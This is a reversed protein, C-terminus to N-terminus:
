YNEIPEVPDIPLDVEIGTGWGSLDVDFGSEIPDPKAEEEEIRLGSVTIVGGKPQKKLQDAIDYNFEVIKGNRLLVELNLTYTRDESNNQDGTRGYYEDPFGPVGFSKVVAECGYSKVDCDYLIVATEDSTRGDRLYVSEAMGGIAGRAYAVNELGSEFEYRILYTFVLPQMKVPVSRVEHLDIHPVQEIYASYLMDPPNTSRVGPHREMVYALSARSRSTASARAEPLSAMDSLVIYETDGNYLLFSHDRNSGLIIEGGEPNLFHENSTSGETFEVLNVWEASRPRLDKYQHGHHEADWNDSHSMGYDREWETEWSLSVDATAFHNYCLETRCSVMPLMLIMAAIMNFINCGKIKM